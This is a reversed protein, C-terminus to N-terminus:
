QSALQSDPPTRKPVENLGLEISSDDKEREKLFMEVTSSQICDKAFAFVQDWEAHNPSVRKTFGRHNRLKVEATVESSGFIPLDSAKVIRLYLYQMQEVLDYTSSTKDKHLAEVWILALRQSPFCAQSM